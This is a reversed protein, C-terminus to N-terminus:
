KMRAAYQKFIQKAVSAKHVEDAGDYIRAAREHRYWFALPTDDLMGLGGHVQVAKDLVRDLVGAVFFKIASIQVRAEKAGVTDIRHATDLVYLRAADIEARCEALYGQLIQKTGLPEGPAFQRSALHHVMMGFARECVGIWRMCHHIRGPGLRQQALAFGGGEPGLLNEVPVRCDTYVVEAHSMWDSGRDGMVPLNRVFRYGPNDLPVLLMSARQHPPAGPNTVAMVIAFAAGEAGTAFWKRGNIVYDDGDRVATTNLWVPNSGAAAPETMTFCSRVDGALLPRLFREHQHPTGFHMLLEQNGVDPAQFNMLYNGVLSGGVAEAVHVFETLTLGLGGWKEPVHPNWLGRRRAEARARGVEPLLEAFPVGALLRAELSPSVEELFARIRELLGRVRPTPEYPM